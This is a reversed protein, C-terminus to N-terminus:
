QLQVPMGDALMQVGSVIVQDGAKVGDLVVYDNGVIDGLHVARQRAIPQKGSTDVVYVFTQGTVRAVATVPLVPRDVEKWVVRVHVVQENRFRRDENPVVAKLLLMQSTPDVRPSVFSVRARIAPKGDGDLVDVESDRHVSGAKEPPISVYAELEGEEDLTTLITDTKVRDGMRVPIDGIVGAAPAKVTFYHLQVEQERVEAELADADAKASAFVAQSQDLDQRSIVGAAFLEKKRQLDTRALDLNALRARRTAEQNNVAAQQKLPDIELIPTDTTVHDGSHVFIRTVNGEVQPQLQASTRSRLTALYETADGVRETRTAQIKVPLAPPVTENAGQVHGTCGESAAALVSAVALALNSRWLM